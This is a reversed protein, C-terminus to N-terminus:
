NTPLNISDSSPEIYEMSWEFGGQFNRYLRYGLFLMVTAVDNLPISCVDSLAEAIEFSTVNLTGQQPPIQPRYNELYMAVVPASSPLSAAEGTGCIVSELKQLYEAHNM